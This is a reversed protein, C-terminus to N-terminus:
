SKLFGSSRGRLGRANLIRHREGGPTGLDDLVPLVNGHHDVPQEQPDEDQHTHDSCQPQENLRQELAVVRWAGPVLLLGRVRPCAGHVCVRVGRVTPVACAVHLARVCARVCAGARM